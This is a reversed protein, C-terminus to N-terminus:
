ENLNIVREKQVRSDWVKVGTDMIEIVKFLGSESEDGNVMEYYKNNLSIVAFRRLDTGVIFTVKLPLPEIPKPPKVPELSTDTHGQVQVAPPPSVLTKFPDKDKAKPEFEKETEDAPAAAKMSDAAPMSDKSPQHQASVPYACLCLFASFVLTLVMSRKKM